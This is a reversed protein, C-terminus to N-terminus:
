VGSVILGYWCQSVYKINVQETTIDVLFL